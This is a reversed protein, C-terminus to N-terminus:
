CVVPLTALAPLACAEVGVTLCVVPLTALAALM